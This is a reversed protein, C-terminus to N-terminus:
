RYPVGAADDAATVEAVAALREERRQEYAVVEAQALHGSSDVPGLLNRDILQQAFAESVGLREAAEALTVTDSTSDTAM